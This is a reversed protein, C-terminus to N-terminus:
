RWSMHGRRYRLDGSLEQSDAYDCIGRVVLYPFDNVLGVAEMEFCLVGFERALRDRAVGHRM